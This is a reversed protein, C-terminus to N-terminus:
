CRLYNDWQGNNRGASTWSDTNPIRPMKNRIRTGLGYRQCISGSGSGVGSRFGKKMSKAPMLENREVCKHTFPLIRSRIRGESYHNRIRSALFCASGASGSGWWQWSHFKSPASPSSYSFLVRCSHAINGTSWFGSKTSSSFRALM